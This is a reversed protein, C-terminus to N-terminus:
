KSQLLNIVYTLSISFYSDLFPTAANGDQTNGSYTAMLTANKNPSAIASRPLLSTQFTDAQNLRCPSDIDHFLSINILFPLFPSPLQLLLPDATQAKTLDRLSL